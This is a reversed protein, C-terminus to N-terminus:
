VIDNTKAKVPEVTLSTIMADRLIYLIFMMLLPPPYTQNNHMQLMEM